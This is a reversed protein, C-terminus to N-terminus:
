HYECTPVGCCGSLAYHAHCQILEDLFDRAASQQRGCIQRGKLLSQRRRPPGLRELIQDALEDGGVPERAILRRGHGLALRLVQDEVLIHNEVLQALAAHAHDDLGQMPAHVPHHGDFHKGRGRHSRRLSDIAEIALHLGGGPERVGVDHGGVVGVLMGARVVQDHFVDLALVQRSDDFRV